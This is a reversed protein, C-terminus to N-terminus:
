RVPPGYHIDHREWLAELAGPDQPPWTPASAVLAALDDFYQEFGGPSCFTLFRVPEATANLFTHVIGTPVLVFAGPGATITREEIVFTLTGALVYFAETVLAHWHPPPGEFHPPAEYELLSWAGATAASDAKRTVTAGRLRVTPGEGASKVLDELQMNSM